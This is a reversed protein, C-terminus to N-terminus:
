KPEDNITSIIIPQAQFPNFIKNNKAAFHSIRVYIRASAHTPFFQGLCRAASEFDNQRSLFNLKGKELKEWESFTMTRKILNDLQHMIEVYMGRQRM